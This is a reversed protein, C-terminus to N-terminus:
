SSHSIRRFGKHSSNIDDDLEDIKSGLASLGGRIMSSMPIADDIAKSVIQGVYPLNILTHYFRGFKDKAVRIRSLFRRANPTISQGHVFRHKM